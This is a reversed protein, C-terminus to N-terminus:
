RNRRWIEAQLLTAFAVWATLPLIAIAAPRDVESAAAVTGIATALMGASVETAQDLRKRGFLVWSFGGIGLVEIAWLSLASTRAVSPRARLLRYGSYALLGDLATWVIGFVPGPPTFDPKRLMAYWLATRPHAPTPNNRGGLYQATIVATGAAVAATSRDM